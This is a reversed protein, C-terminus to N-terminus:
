FPVERALGQRVPLDPTKQSTPYIEMKWKFFGRKGGM